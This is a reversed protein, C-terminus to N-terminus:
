VLIQDKKDFVIADLEFHTYKTKKELLERQLINAQRLEKM